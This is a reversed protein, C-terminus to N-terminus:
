RLVSAELDKTLPGDGWTQSLWGRGGDFHCTALAGNVLTFQPQRHGIDLDVLVPCPLDGLAEHMAGAHDLRQANTVEPAASRGLLVGALGEFWGHLRLSYLTRLMECPNQECNELYLLVGEARHKRIFGPVDGFPTGALRSVTDLCGGILRGRLTIAEEDRGDLRRWRTPETLNFAAAADTEFPTWTVQFRPSAAQRLPAVGDHSLVDLVGRVLPDTQSPALDMLNSGHASAWSARLLLPMQLTSIDSFGLLWKPPLPRLAGFDLRPLLEIAREGGWPPLVAAVAPDTLFRMLEAARQAAPASQDHRQTRLCDGEVVRFGRSRLHDLVLDLRALAGTTAVGSSPATIAVTDGPRLPRPFRIM